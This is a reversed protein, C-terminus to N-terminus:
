DLVTIQLLSWSYHLIKQRLIEDIQRKIERLASHHTSIKMQEFFLHM